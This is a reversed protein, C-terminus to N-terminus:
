NSVPVHLSLYQSTKRAPTPLPQRCTRIATGAAGVQSVTACPGLLLPQSVCDTWAACSRVPRAGRCWEPSWRPAHSIRCSMILISTRYAVKSVPDMSLRGSTLLCRSRMKLCVQHSFCVNLSLPSSYSWWVHNYTFMKGGVYLPSDRTLPHVHGLSDLTTPLGGDVSLNVM